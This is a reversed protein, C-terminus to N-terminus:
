NGILNLISTLAKTNLGIPSGYYVFDATFFRLFIPAFRFMNEHMIKYFIMCTLRSNQDKAPKTVKKIENCNRYMGTYKMNYKPLILNEKM